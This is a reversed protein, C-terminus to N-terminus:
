RRYEQQYTSSAHAGAASGADRGASIMRLWRLCDFTPRIKTARGAQRGLRKGRHRDCCCPRVQGLSASSLGTLVGCHQFSVDGANTWVPSRFISRWAGNMALRPFRGTRWHERLTNLLDLTSRGWRSLETVLIADITDAVPCAGPSEKREARDLKTGSGTEKFIGM